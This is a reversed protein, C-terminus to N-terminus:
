AGEDSAALTLAEEDRGKALRALGDAVAGMSPREDTDIALMDMIVPTLPGSRRPPLLQGSAM